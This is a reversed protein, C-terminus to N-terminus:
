EDAPNGNQPRVMANSLDVRELRHGHERVMAEIQEDSLPICEHPDLETANIAFRLLVMKWYEDPALFTPDCRLIKPFAESDRVVQEHFLSLPTDKAHDEAGRSTPSAGLTLLMIAKKDNYDQVAKMLATMGKADISDVDAGCALLTRALALKAEDRDHNPVADFVNYLAEHFLPDGDNNRQNPDFSRLYRLHFRAVSGFM